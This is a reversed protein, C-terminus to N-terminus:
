RESREADEVAVGTLGGNEAINCPVPVDLWSCVEFLIVDMERCGRRLSAVVLALVLLPIGLLLPVRWSAAADIALVGTIESIFPAALLATWLAIVVKSM